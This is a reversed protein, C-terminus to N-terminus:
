KLGRQGLTVNGANVSQALKTNDAYLTVPRDAVARLLARDEPSLYAITGGAAAPVSVSMASGMGGIRQQNLANMFDVGYTKVSAANVVYEGRSLMAPVSDSTPSGPGQVYGGKSLKLADVYMQRFYDYLMSPRAPPRAHSGGVSAMGAQAAAILSNKNAAKIGQLLFDAYMSGSTRGINAWMDSFAKATAAEDKKAGPGKLKNLLDKWYAAIFSDTNTPLNDLYDQVAKRSAKQHEAKRLNKELDKFYNGVFTDTNSPLNNIFDRVTDAASKPPENIKITVSSTKGNLGNFKAEFEIIAQLAASLNSNIEIDVNRPAETAVTGFEDFMKLYDGLESEAFGVAKANQLFQRKLVEINKALQGPKVGIAAQTAIYNQYTGLMGMLAARNDRAAQTEGTLSMSAAKQAATLDGEAKTVDATTKALKERIQAARLEDGYREAVALQYKLVNEDAKLGALTREVEEIKDNASKANDGIKQWGNAIEDKGQLKGLELQVVRDMISKLDGAYDVVTRLSKSVKTASDDLDGLGDTLDALADAAGPAVIGLSELTKIYAITSATGRDIGEASKYFYAVAKQLPTGLYSWQDITAKIASESRKAGTGLEYMAKYLTAMLAQSGGAQEMKFLDNVNLKGLGDVAKKIQDLAGTGPSKSAADILTAFELNVEGLVTTFDVGSDIGFEFMKIFNKDDVLAKLMLQKFNEGLAINQNRIATTTEKYSSALSSQKGTAGAAATAANTLETRNKTMNITHVAVAKGGEQWAKTDKAVAESLAAVGGASQTFDMEVKNLEYLTGVISAIGIGAGVLGLASLSASLLRVQVSARGSSLALNAQDASLKNAAVGATIQAKTLFQTAGAADKVVYLNGTLGQFFSKLGVNGVHFSQSMKLFATRIALTQAKVINLAFNLAGFAAVAVTLSTAIPLITKGLDTKSFETAAKTVDILVDLIPKLAESFVDGASAKLEEFANTLLQIKTELNDLTAGYITQLATGEAYSRAADDLSKNYVDMNQSLRQLVNRERTNTLGMADMAKTFSEVSGLGDLLSTFFEEPSNKWLFQAQEASMKATQAFFQLKDSGGEVARTINDFVRLIVGRAQEPAIGLSAIATALGITQDASYGANRAAAAISETMSLIERETAVANFGAYLVASGLKEFDESPVGALASIRGFKTATDDITAGTVAAFSAITKTFEAIDGTAIGMQSGLTAIETIDEFAIPITTSLDLLIDRMDSFGQTGARLQTAREVSTFASEFKGAVLVVSLMNKAIRASTDAIQQYTSAMDYLAYRGTVMADMQERDMKAARRRDELMAQGQLKNMQDQALLRKKIGNLQEKDEASIRETHSIQRFLTDGLKEHAKINQDIAAKRLKESRLTVAANARDTKIGERARQKLDNRAWDLTPSLGRGVGMLDLGGRSQAAAKAGQIRAANEAQIQAMAQEHAEKGAALAQQQLSKIDSEARKKAKGSGSDSSTAKGTSEYAGVLGQLAKSASEVQEIFERADASIKAHFTAGSAM